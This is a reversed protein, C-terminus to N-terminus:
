LFRDIYDKTKGVFHDQLITKQEEGLDSYKIIAELSNTKKM